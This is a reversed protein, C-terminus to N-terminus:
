KKKFVFYKSKGQGHNNFFNGILDFNNNKFYDIIYNNPLVTPFNHKSSLWKTLIEQSMCDETYCDFIIIGDPKVVRLMEIFYRINDLFKLYVFVGHAHILDISKDKTSKLSFGDTPQSIIPYEKELWEAWDSATEYSEYRKPNCKAIVKEMYRGTGAGIECINPGIFDFAGFKEMNDIVKQTEGKQNWITEVYECVTLGEKQANRVTERASIYSLNSTNTVFHNAKILRLNILNLVSNIFKELNSTM